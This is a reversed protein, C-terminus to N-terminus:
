IYNYEMIYRIRITPIAVPLPPWRKRQGRL